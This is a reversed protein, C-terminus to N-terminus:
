QRTAHQGEELFYHDPVYEVQEAPPVDLYHHLEDTIQKLSFSQTILYAAEGILKKLAERIRIEEPSLDEGITEKIGMFNNM